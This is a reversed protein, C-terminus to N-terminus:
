VFNVLHEQMRGCKEFMSFVIKDMPHFINDDWWIIRLERDQAKKLLNNAKELEIKLPAM